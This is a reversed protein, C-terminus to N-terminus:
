KIKRFILSDTMTLPFEDLWILRWNGSVLQVLYSKDKFYMNGNIFLNSKEPEEFINFEVQGDQVVILELDVYTGGPEGQFGRKGLPAITVSISSKTPTSTVKVQKISQNVTLSYNKLIQTSTVIM